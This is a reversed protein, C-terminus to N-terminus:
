IYKAKFRVSLTMELGTGSVVLSSLGVPLSGFRGNTNGLVNVSGIKAIRKAFNLELVGSMPTNYTTVVGGVSLALSTFSGAIEIVPAANQTGFNDIAVTTPGSISFAYAADVSIDNDVLLPSDVDLDTTDVLCYCFPDYAIFPLTFQGFGAMRDIDLSGAYRVMLYRDPQTAFVLKMTRPRGTGDVLYVALSSVRRQLEGAHRALMACELELTRPGLSAGFDYAGHKGPVSLVHDVTAPLIPRKSKRLTKLGLEQPTKDGLFAVVESM